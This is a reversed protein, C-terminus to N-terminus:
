VFSIHGTFGPRSSKEQPPPSAMIDEPHDTTVNDFLKHQRMEPWADEYSETLVCLENNKDFITMLKEEPFLDRIETKTLKELNPNKLRSLHDAALNEACKKDRIDIDFEKLTYEVHDYLKYVTVTYGQLNRWVESRIDPEFMVKLDGWLVKEHEDEPRIDDHKTKVLKWLTELYERDIGQLIRIMSSYRKSSGDARMFQYHVMIGEKLLKYEVIVPSKIALPIDDIAIEDDEVIVLHKKLEAEDDEEVEEHKDTEKDDEM